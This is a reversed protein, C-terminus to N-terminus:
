NEGTESIWWSIRVLIAVILIDVSISSQIEIVSYCIITVHVPYFFISRNSKKIIIIVTKNVKIVNYYKIIFDLSFFCSVIFLSYLTLTTGNCFFNNFPNMSILLFNLTYMHWYIGKFPLM